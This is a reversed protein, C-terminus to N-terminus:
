LPKSIKKGTEIHSTFWWLYLELREIRHKPKGSRSLAHNEGPFRAFVVEKNMRRMFAFLQEAESIPCIYDEESHIIMLPTVINTAYKIPSKDYYKGIDEWPFFDFFDNEIRRYDDSTGYFTYLNALCRDTVAAVFKTEHTIIWNTLLGGYSGGYIGLRSKDAWGQQIVYDALDMNDTYDKELYHGTLGASYQEGYGQTGRFNCTVLALGQACLCQYEHMFTFGETGGGGHMQVVCPNAPSKGGGVPPWYWADIEVGDRARFVFKEPSTLQIQSLLPTNFQTIQTPAATTDSEQSSSEHRFLEPLHLPDMRTYALAGNSSISFSNVVHNGRTVEQAQGSNVVAFYINCNGRNTSLFYVRKSDASWVPRMQLNGMKSDYVVSNVAALDLKPAARWTKRNQLDHIWLQDPTNFKFRYDNGIFAVYRGDPSISLSSIPGNNSMQKVLGGDANDLDISFLDLNVHFDADSETNSIVLAKKGDPFIDFGYVDFDGRTIRRVLNTDLSVNLLHTKKNHVYGEGNIRYNRRTILKVDNTQQKTEESQSNSLFFISDSRPSWKPNTIRGDCLAILKRKNLGNSDAIWLESISYDRTRRNVLFLLKRNDQSWTPNFSRNGESILPTLTERSYKWIAGDYDDEEKRPQSVTFLIGNGDSSIHPDYVYKFNYLDEATMPRM